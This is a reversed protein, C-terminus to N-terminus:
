RTSRVPRIPVGRSRRNGGVSYQDSDFDFEWACTPNDTCLSSSWYCGNGFLEDVWRCGAAPLFLSNGNSACFLAGLVGNIPIWVGTINQNLEEWQDKTPICWGDGWSAIAADDTPQLSTLDDTFGNYGYDSDNCYKTMKADDENSYRYNFWFFTGKPATEGWAFYDGFDVPSIAGVNCTAWLTGSPLGLDVYDHGSHSGSVTITDKDDVGAGNGGQNTPDTEHKCGAAFVLAVMIMLAALAKTMRKM